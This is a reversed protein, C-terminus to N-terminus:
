CRTRNPVLWTTPLKSDRFIIETRQRWLFWPVSVRKHTVSATHMERSSEWTDGITEETRMIYSSALSAYLMQMARKEGPCKKRDHQVCLCQTAEEEQKSRQRQSDEFFAPLSPTPLHTKRNLMELVAEMSPRKRCNNQVCLLGIQICRSVQDKPCKDWLCRDIVEALPKKARYQKWIMHVLNEQNSQAYQPITSGVVIELILLGYSYVDSRTSYQQKFWLEPAIYGFTGAINKDTIHTNNM